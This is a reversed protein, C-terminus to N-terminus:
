GKKISINIPEPRMTEKEVIVKVVKGSYGDKTISMHFEGKGIGSVVWRGADDTKTEVASGDALPLKVVVGAVPEGTDSTIKGNLVGLGRTQAFVPVSVTVVAVLAIAPIIRKMSERRRRRAKDVRSIDLGGKFDTGQARAQIPACHSRAVTARECGDM